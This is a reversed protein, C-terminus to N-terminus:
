SPLNEDDSDKFCIQNVAHIYNGIPDNGGFLWQIAMFPLLVALSVGSVFVTISLPLRKM